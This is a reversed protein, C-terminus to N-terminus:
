ILFFVAMDAPPQVHPDHLQISICLPPPTFTVAAPNRGSGSPNPFQASCTHPYGGCAHPFAKDPDM